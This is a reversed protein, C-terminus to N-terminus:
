MLLVGYNTADIHHFDFISDKKLELLDSFGKETCTSEGESADERAPQPFHDHYNGPCDATSTSTSCLSLNCDNHGTYNKSINRDEPAIEQVWSHTHTNHISHTNHRCTSLVVTCATSCVPHRYIDVSCYRTNVM